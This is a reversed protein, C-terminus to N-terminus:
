FITVSLFSVRVSFVRFLSPSTALSSPWIPLLGWGETCRTGALAEPAMWLPTGAQRSSEEQGYKIQESIGFDTLKVVGRSTLLINAAKVDHHVIVSRDKSPPCHLYCLALLVCRLIYRLHQERFGESSAKVLDALSGRECYEMLLCPGEKKLNILGYYQLLNPHMCEKLIRTERLLDEASSSSNSSSSKFIKVALEMSQMAPHVVKYVQLVLPGPCGLM